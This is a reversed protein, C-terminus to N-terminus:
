TPATPAGAELVGGQPERRSVKEGREDQGGVGLAGHEARAHGRVRPARGHADRGRRHHLSRSQGRHAGCRRALHDPRRQVRSLMMAFLVRQHCGCVHLVSQIMPLDPAHAGSRSQRVSGRETRRAGGCRTLRPATDAAAVEAESEAPAADAGVGAQRAAADAPQVEAAAPGVNKDMPEEAPAARSSAAHKQLKKDQLGERRKRKKAAKEGLGEAGLSCPQKAAEFADPQSSDSGIGAHPVGLAHATEPAAPTRAAEASQSLPADACSAQEAGRRQKRRKQGQELAPESPPQAAHTADEQERLKRKDRKPKKKKLAASHSGDLDTQVPATDAGSTDQLTLLTRAADAMGGDALGAGGSAARPASAAAASRKATRESPINRQAAPVAKEHKDRLHTQAHPEESVNAADARKHKKQTKKKEKEKKKEILEGPNQAGLLSPTTANANSTSPASPAPALLSALPASAQPQHM